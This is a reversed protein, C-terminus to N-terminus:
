RFAKLTEMIAEMLGEAGPPAPDLFSIQFYLTRLFQKGNHYPAFVELNFSDDASWSAKWETFRTLWARWDDSTLLGRKCVDVAALAMREDEDYSYMHVIPALLKGVIGELIRRLDAGDVHRSRALFKLLDACHASSHAWGKGIIYGRLDQEAAFYALGKDLLQRVENRTLFPHNNDHYVVVSLMLVSFSRLFVSDTETEGIGATLNDQWRAMLRRLDAPTYKGAMIWQTLLRYAIEDRLEGDPLGLYSDLAQTLDPLARGNPIDGNDDIIGQWFTKDM